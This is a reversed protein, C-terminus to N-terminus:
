IGGKMLAHRKDAGSTTETNISDRSPIDTLISRKSLAYLAPKSKAAENKYKVYRGRKSLKLSDPLELTPQTWTDNM